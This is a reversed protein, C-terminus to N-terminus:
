KYHKIADKIKGLTEEIVKNKQQIKRSLQENINILEEVSAGSPDSCPLPPMTEIVGMMEDLDPKFKIHGCINDFPTPPNDFVCM